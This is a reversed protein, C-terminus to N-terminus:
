FRYALCLGMGRIGALNGTAKATSSTAGVNINAHFYKNDIVIDKLQDEFEKFDEPDIQYKSAKLRLGSHTIYPGFIWWDLYVSRSLQFQIGLQLGAGIASYRIDLAATMPEKNVEFNISPVRVNYNEIRGFLGIYFGKNKKGTYYRIEPTFVHAGITASRLANKVNSEQDGLEGYKDLLNFLTNLMPLKRQPMWRYGVAASFHTSLVREYQLGINGWFLSTANLKVFNPGASATNDEPYGAAINYTNAIGTEHATATFATFTCLSLLLYHIKKM